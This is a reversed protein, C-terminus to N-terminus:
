SYKKISKYYMELLFEQTQALVQTLSFFMPM